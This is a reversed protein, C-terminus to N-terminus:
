ILHGRSITSNNDNRQAHTLLGTSSKKNMGKPRHLASKPDDDDGNEHVTGDSDAEGGIITAPAAAATNAPEANILIEFYMRAIALIVLECWDAASFFVPCPASVGCCITSPDRPTIIDDEFINVNVTVNTEQSSNLNSGGMQHSISYSTLRNVQGQNFLVFSIVNWGLVCLVSATFSDMLLAIMPRDKAVLFLAVGIVGVALMLIDIAQDSLSIGISNQIWTGAFQNFAFVSFGVLGAVATLLVISGVAHFAALTMVLCIILISASGLATPDFLLAYVLAACVAVNIAIIFQQLIRFSRTFLIWAFIDIAATITFLYLPDKVCTDSSTSSNTSSDTIM